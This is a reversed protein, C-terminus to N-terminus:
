QKQSTSFNQANKALLATKKKEKGEAVIARDM